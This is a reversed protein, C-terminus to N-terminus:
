AEDTNLIAESLIISCLCEVGDCIEAHVRMDKDQRIDHFAAKAAESFYGKPLKDPSITIEGSFKINM